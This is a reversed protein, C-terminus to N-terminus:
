QMDLFRVGIISASPGNISTPAKKEQGRVFSTPSSPTLRSMSSAETFMATTPTRPIHRINAPNCISEMSMFFPASLIDVCSSFM